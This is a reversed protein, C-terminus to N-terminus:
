DKAAIDAIKKVIKAKSIVTFFKTKRLLPIIKNRAFWVFIRVIVYIPIYIILGCLFSGCGITNNFNTFSVFPIELLFDFTPELSNITLFWGGVSDFVSDFLPALLTFGLTSLVLAAKNIRLFIVFVTIVYWFINDKPLFGLLMGLSVAHAIEGPHSNSNLSKFLKIIIKLM